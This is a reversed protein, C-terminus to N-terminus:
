ILRCAAWKSRAIVSADGLAMPQKQPRVKALFALMVTYRIDSANTPRTAIAIHTPNEHARFDNLQDPPGM